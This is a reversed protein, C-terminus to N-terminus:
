APLTSVWEMVTDVLLDPESRHVSLAVTSLSPLTRALGANVLPESARQL